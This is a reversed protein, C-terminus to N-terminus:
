HQYSITNVEKSRSSSGVPRKGKSDPPPVINIWLGRAIAEEVSFTTQILSKLNHFPIGM